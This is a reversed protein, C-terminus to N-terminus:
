LWSSIFFIGWSSKKITQVSILFNLNILSTNPKRVPSRKNCITNSVCLAEPIEDLKHYIDESNAFEDRMCRVSGERRAQEESMALFVEIGWNGSM